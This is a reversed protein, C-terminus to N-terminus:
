TYYKGSAETISIQGALVEQVFVGDFFTNLRFINFVAMSSGFINDEVAMINQICQELVSTANYTLNVNLSMLGIIISVLPPPLFEVITILCM